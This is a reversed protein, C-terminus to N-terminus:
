MIMYKCFIPCLSHPLLAQDSGDQGTQEKGVSIFLGQSIQVRFCGLLVANVAWPLLAPDVLRCTVSLLPWVQSVSWSRNRLGAKAPKPQATQSVSLAPPPLLSQDLAAKIESAASICGYMKTKRGPIIYPLHPRGQALSPRGGGDHSKELASVM